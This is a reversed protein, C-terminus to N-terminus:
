FRVGEAALGDLAPTLASPDGACGMMDARHQDSMVLLINPAGTTMTEGKRDSRINTHSSRIHNDCSDGGSRILALESSRPAGSVQRWRRLSGQLWQMGNSRFLTNSSRRPSFKVSWEFYM